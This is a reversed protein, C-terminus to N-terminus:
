RQAQREALGQVEFHSLAEEAELGLARSPEAQAHAEVEQAKTAACGVTPGQTSGRIAPWGCRLWACRTM